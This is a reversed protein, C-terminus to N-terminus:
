RGWDFLQDSPLNLNIWNRGPRYIAFWAGPVTFQLDHDSRVTFNISSGESPLNFIVESLWNFVPLNFIVESPLNFVVESPLNFVVESPLNLNHVTLQDVKSPLNFIMIMMSPLNNSNQITFQSWPRYILVRPRYIPIRSPLNLDNLYILDRPRYIQRVNQDRVTFQSGYISLESPLNFTCRYIQDHVTFQFNQVTFKDRVTFQFNQVTFKTASTLLNITQSLM